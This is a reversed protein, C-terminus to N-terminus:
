HRSFAIFLYIWKNIERKPDQTKLFRTKLFWETQGNKKLLKQVQQLEQLMELTIHDLALPSLLKHGWSSQTFWPIHFFISILAGVTPFASVFGWTDMLNAMALHDACTQANIMIGAREEEGWLWLDQPPVGASRSCPSPKAASLAFLSPVSVSHLPQM